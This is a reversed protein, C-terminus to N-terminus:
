APMATATTVPLVIRFTSGRGEESEVRVTGGMLEVYEKVIALGLGANLGDGTRSPDARYFREFILDRAQAPIGIGTDSVALEVHGNSRAVRLEIQGEPRNYQIANHLLNNLVERLKDPDTTLRDAQQHVTGGDPHYVSLKLGREEALPRVVTASDRICM